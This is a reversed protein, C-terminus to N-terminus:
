QVIPDETKPMSSTIGELTQMIRHPPTDSNLILLLGLYKNNRYADGEYKSIYIARESSEPSVPKWALYGINKTKHFNNLRNAVNKCRESPKTKKDPSSTKFIIIPINGLDSRAVVTPYVTNKIDSENDIQHQDDCFYPIGQELIERDRSVERAKGANSGSLLITTVLLVSGFFRFGM